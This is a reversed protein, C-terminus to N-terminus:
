DEAGRDAEKKRRRVEVASREDGRFRYAKTIVAITTHGTRDRHKRASDTSKEARAGARPWDCDQCRASIDREIDRGGIAVVPKSKGSV